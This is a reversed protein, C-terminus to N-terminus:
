QQLLNLMETVIRGTITLSEPCIKDLSDKPTHWYDNAGPTSGFRFDILNVAPFGADLFPQHDDLIGGDYLAIFARDGTADAAKLALARLWGTGNHPVMINLDRDGIMDTLIVAKVDTKARKLKDALHRSGHLGDNVGYQVHCEEGDTFACLINHQFGNAKIVRALELLLGTSSGSDNAGQFDESIGSKTDFHSLLVITQNTKTGPLFATVNVFGRSGEPTDSTFRDLEATIGQAALQAQLWKAAREAGPTMADRPTCNEVLGVVYAFANSGNEATFALRSATPAAVESAKDCGAIGLVCAVAGCILFRKM